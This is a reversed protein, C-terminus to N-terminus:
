ARAQRPAARGHLRLAGVVRLLEDPRPFPLPELFVAEMVSVTATTGGIGLAVALAVALSVAPAQAALRVAHRIDSWLDRLM